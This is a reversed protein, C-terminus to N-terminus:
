KVNYSYTYNKNNRLDKFRIIVKNTCDKNMMLTYFKKYTNDSYKQYEKETNGISDNNNYINIYQNIKTKSCKELEHIPTKEINTDSFKTEKRLEKEFRLVSETLNEEPMRQMSKGIVFAYIYFALIICSIFALVFVTIKRSNNKM